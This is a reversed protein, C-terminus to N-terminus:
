NRRLSPAVGIGLAWTAKSVLLPVATKFKSFPMGEAPLGLRALANLLWAPPDQVLKIEVVVQDGIRGVPGGLPSATGDVASARYDEDFTIRVHGAADVFAERVYSVTLRPRVGFAVLYELLPKWFKRRSVPKKGARAKM